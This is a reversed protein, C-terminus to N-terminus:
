EQVKNCQLEAQWKCICMLPSKHRKNTKDGLAKCHCSRPFIAARSAETIHDEGGRLQHVIRLNSGRRWPEGQRNLTSKAKIRM